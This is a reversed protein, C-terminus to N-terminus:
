PRARVVADLPDRVPLALVLVRELSAREVEALARVTVYDAHAEVVVRADIGAGPWPGLRGDALANAAAAAAVERAALQLAGEAQGEALAAQVASRAALGDLAVVFSSSLALLALVSAAVLVLVLAAGSAGSAKM